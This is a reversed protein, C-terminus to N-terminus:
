RDGYEYEGADYSYGCSKCILLKGCHPCLVPDIRDHYREYAERSSFTLARDCNQCILPNDCNGCKDM